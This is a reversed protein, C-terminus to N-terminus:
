GTRKNSMTSQYGNTTITWYYGLSNAYKMLDFLDKRLLPEGGTVNLLINSPNYKKSVDELAKKLYEYEIEDKPIKDGCSSGCHECKANCRSTVELFIDTLCPKKILSQRIDYLKLMDIKKNIENTIM